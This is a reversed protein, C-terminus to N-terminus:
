STQYMSMRFRVPPAPIYRAIYGAPEIFVTKWALNSAIKFHPLLILKLHCENNECVALWCQDLSTQIHWSPSFTVHLYMVLDCFSELKCFHLFYKVFSLVSIMFTLNATVYLLSFACSAAINDLVITLGSYRVLTITLSLLILFLVIRWVFWLWVVNM